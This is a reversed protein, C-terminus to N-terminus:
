YGEENEPFDDLKLQQITGQIVEWSFGRRALFDAIKKKAKQPPERRYRGMRQSILEMALSEETQEKYSEEVAASAASEDVGKQKLEQLLLRKSMPKQIMRTQTYASAFAEDNLLGVRLFDDVTRDIIKEDIGKEKLKDKIEQVSRSRYSLLALAKNKAKALEESLLVDHILSESIEDGEHLAHRVAVEQDLGFAFADDLYVNVRDARRKQPELRTIRYCVDTM